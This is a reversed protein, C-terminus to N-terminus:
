KYQYELSHQRKNHQATQVNKNLGEHFINNQQIRTENKGSGLPKSYIVHALLNQTDASLRVDFYQPVSMHQVLPVFEIPVFYRFLMTSLELFRSDYHISNCQM